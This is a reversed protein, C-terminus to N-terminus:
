FLYFNYVIVKKKFFEVKFGIIYIFGDINEFM